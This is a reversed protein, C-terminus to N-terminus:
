RSDLVHELWSVRQELAAIDLAKILHGALYGLTRARHLSNELQLADNICRQLLTAVDAMTDLTVPEPQGIAGIRRRHRARGGKRRAQRREVARAPDHQFCYVSDEVAYGNCPNGDRNTANCKQSPM